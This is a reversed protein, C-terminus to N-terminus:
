YSDLLGKLMAADDLSISTGWAPYCVLYMLAEKCTDAEPQLLYNRVAEPWTALVSMDKASEEANADDHWGALCDRFILCLDLLGPYGAAMAQEGTEELGACFLRLQEPGTHAQNLIAGLRDLHEQLIKSSDSM